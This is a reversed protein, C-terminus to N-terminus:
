GNKKAKEAQRAEEQEIADLMKKTIKKTCNSSLLFGMVDEYVKDIDTAPDELWEELEKATPSQTNVRAKLLVDCLADVAGDHIQGIRYQLGVFEGNDAKRVKNVERIFGFGFNFGCDKGNINLMVM